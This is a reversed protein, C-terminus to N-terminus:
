MGLRSMTLSYCSDVHGSGLASYSRFRPDNVPHVMALIPVTRHVMCGRYKRYRDVEVHRCRNHLLKPRSTSSCSTPVSGCLYEQARAHTYPVLEASQWFGTECRDCPTFHFCVRSFDSPPPPRVIKLLMITPLLDRAFHQSSELPLLTPLHDITVCSLVKEGAVVDFTPKDFTTSVNCFPLPNHPNTTDCSVDVLVSLKRGPQALMQECM